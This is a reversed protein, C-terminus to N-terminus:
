TTNRISLSVPIVSLTGSHPSSTEIKEDLISFAKVALLEFDIHVSTISPHVYSCIPLDDFGAIAIDEPIKIGHKAAQEIFGMCMYDNSAFIARPRTRSGVFDEFAKRGSDLNYDGDYHWSLEIDDYQNIYDLFGNKRLLSENRNNPGTILGMKRYGKEHFHKAVIYGGRYSDFTITDLVPNFLPAVSIACFDEPIQDILNKYDREQLSPLFLIAADISNHSLSTIFDALNEKKPDYAHLSLHVNSKSAALHFGHFFASYFEDPYIETILAVQILKKYSYKNHLIRSNVPYNIEQATKITLEVNSSSSKSEGRLIRSVTSVSLGTKDAIDQLTAKVM